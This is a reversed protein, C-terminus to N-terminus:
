KALILQNVQTSYDFPNALDALHHLPTEITEGELLAHEDGASLANPDVYQLLALLPCNPWPLM